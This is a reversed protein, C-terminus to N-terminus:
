STENDTIFLADGCNRKTDALVVSTSIQLDPLRWYKRLLADTQSRSLREYGNKEYFRVAWVASEWTGILVPKSTLQELHALLVTGIGHNRSATRVYAHRMLTVPGRDQIGMVGLLVGNKEYCWFVVEDRIEQELAELTMYPEHWCAEPIVGKYAQAADNIVEYLEEIDRDSCRRIM